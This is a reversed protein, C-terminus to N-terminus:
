SKDLFNKLEKWLLEHTDEKRSQLKVRNWGYEKALHDHTKLCKAVLDDNLEHVHNKERAKLTREGELMLAFDEKILHKNMSELWDQELGKAMGWALGTGIYDEAVVIHGENLLEKLRGEWQYRNLVFWMQLEDESIKQGDSNRLANNLFVGTPKIDYVPYKVYFSKHGESRLREVLLKAHTTKGINNIGYLTILKGQM